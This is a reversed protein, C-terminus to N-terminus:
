RPRQCRPCFYTGRQAVRIKKITSGCQYCPKGARGYVQHDNQYGGQQGNSNVYDRVTTGGKDIAARLMLQMATWMRSRKSTRMRSLQYTPHLRCRFLLEDVYINGLGAIIQQNLLTPKAMGSHLGPHHVFEEQSMYLADYGLKTLMPMKLLAGCPYVWIRGFRRPDRYVLLRGDGLEFVVHSHPKLQEMSEVFCLTGTMRFHVLLQNRRALGIFLYKGYRRLSTVKVPFEPDSCGNWPEVVGPTLVKWGCLTNGVLEPELSRRVSEVEPLEPM